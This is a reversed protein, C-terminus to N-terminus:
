VNVINTSMISMRRKKLGTTLPEKFSLNVIAQFSAYNGSAIAKKSGYNLGANNMSNNQM